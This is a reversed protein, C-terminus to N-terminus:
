CGHDIGVPKMIAKATHRSACNASVTVSTRGDPWRQHSGSQRVLFFGHLKLVAKVEESYGNM